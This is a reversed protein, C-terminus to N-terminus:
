ESDQVFAVKITGLTLTTWEFNVLGFIEECDPIM